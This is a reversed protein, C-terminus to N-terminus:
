HDVTYFINRVDLKIMMDFNPQQKEYVTHACKHPVLFNPPRLRQPGAGKPSPRAQGWLFVSRRWM